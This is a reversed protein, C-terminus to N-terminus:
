ITCKYTYKFKIYTHTQKHMQTHIHTNTTHMHSTHTDKHTNIYMCTIVARTHNKHTKRTGHTYAPKRIFRHIHIQTYLHTPIRVRAHDRSFKAAMTHQM